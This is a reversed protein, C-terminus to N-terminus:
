VVDYVQSHYEVEFFNCFLEWTIEEPWFEPEHWEALENKFFELYNKQLYERFDKPTDFGPLLYTSHDGEFTHTESSRAKEDAQKLWDYFPKCRKLAM